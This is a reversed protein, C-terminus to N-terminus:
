HKSNYSEVFEDLVVPWSGDDIHNELKGGTELIFEYFMVWTDNTIVLLKGAKFKDRLFDYWAGIWKYKDAFFIGWVGCALEVDVNNKGEDRAFTFAFKYCQTVYNETNM